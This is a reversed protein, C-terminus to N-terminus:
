YDFLYKFLSLRLQIQNIMDDGMIAKAYPNPYISDLVGTTYSEIDFPNYDYDNILCTKENDNNNNITSTLQKVKKLKMRSINIFILPFPSLDIQQLGQKSIRNNSALISITYDKELSKSGGLNFYYSGSLERVTKANLKTTSKKCQIIIPVSKFKRNSLDNLTTPVKMISPSNRLILQEKNQLTSQNGKLRSGSGKPPRGRKKPIIININEKEDNSFLPLLLNENTKKFDNFKWSAQLDIGNDFSGGCRIMDDIEFFQSLLSGVTYEYLTGEFVTSTPSKNTIECHKLFSKIDNHLPTPKESLITSIEKRKSISSNNVNNKNDNTIM